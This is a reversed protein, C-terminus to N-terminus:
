NLEEAISELIVSLDARFQESDFVDKEVEIDQLIDLLRKATDEVDHNILVYEYEGLTKAEDAAIKLRKHIEKASDGRDKLRSVLTEADVAIFVTIIDTRLRKLDINQCVMRMGNVDIELIMPHNKDDSMCNLVPQLPTAYYHNGYRNFEIYRGSKLNAQFEEPTVFVYRDNDNRRERDTESISLQIESDMEMIKRIVTGKGAGSFGSIILLKRM